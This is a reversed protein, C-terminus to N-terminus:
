PLDSFIKWFANLKARITIHTYRAISLNVISWVFWCFIFGCDLPRVKNLGSIKRTKKMGSWLALTYWFDVDVFCHPRSPVPRGRSVQCTVGEQFCPPLFSYPTNTLVHPTHTHRAHMHHKHPTHTHTSPTCTSSACTQTQPVHARTTHSHSTHVHARTHTLQTKQTSFPYFLRKKEELGWPAATIYYFCVGEEQWSFAESPLNVLLSFMYLDKENVTLKCQSAVVLVWGELREGTGLGSYHPLFFM